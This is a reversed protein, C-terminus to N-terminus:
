ETKKPLNEKHVKQYCDPNVKLKALQHSVTSQDIKLCDAIDSQNFGELSLGYIRAKKIPSVTLGLPM